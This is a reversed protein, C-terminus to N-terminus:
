KQVVKGIVDSLPVAGFKRSDESVERNDGLIFVKGEPVKYEGNALTWSEPVNEWDVVEGAMKYIRKIIYGTSADKDHVVVVDRNRLPGVLWYAKSALVRQRDKFTPLMSDGSVVVTKFNFYFIVTMTLIILMTAGFGTIATTRKKTM